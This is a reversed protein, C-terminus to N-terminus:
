CPFQGGLRFVGVFAYSVHNNDSSINDNVFSGKPFSLHHILRFEGTTKKPVVGLSSIRFPSFPPLSFHALSGM